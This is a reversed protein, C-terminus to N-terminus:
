ISISGLSNWRGYFMGIVLCVVRNHSYCRGSPFLMKWRNYCTAIGDAVQCYCRGFTTEVNVVFILCYCRGIIFLYICLVQCYCRGYIFIIHIIPLLMQWLLLPMLMQWPLLIQRCTHYYCWGHVIISIIFIVLKGYVKKTNLITPFVNEESRLFGHQIVPM